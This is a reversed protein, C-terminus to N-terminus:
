LETIQQGFQLFYGNNDYIAFERMGHEFNEVPYCVKANDKLKAWMPEVDDTQLYFSGTFGIKDFVEHASPKALMISVGDISLSAWGWDENVEDCAFDRTETYFRITGQLDETWMMPRLGTIKM